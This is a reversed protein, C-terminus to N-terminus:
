EALETPPQYLIIRVFQLRELDSVLEVEVEQGATGPRTIVNAVTGVPINPPALSTSGGATFVALIWWVPEVRFRRGM